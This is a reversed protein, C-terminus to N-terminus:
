LDKCKTPEEEVAISGEELARVMADDLFMHLYTTGDGGTCVESDIASQVDRAFEVPDHVRYSMFQMTEENMWCLRNDPSKEFSNKLTNVGISIRLEEDRVEITLPKNSSM